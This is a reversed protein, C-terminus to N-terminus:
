APLFDVASVTARIENRTGSLTWDYVLQFSIAPPDLAGTYEAMQFTRVVTEGAPVVTDPLWDKTITSEAAM